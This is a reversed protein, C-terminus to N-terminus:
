RAEEIITTRPIAALREGACLVLDIGRPFLRALAARQGLLPAPLAAALRHEREIGPGSLTLGAGEALSALQLILTAGEQPAEDSGTRLAALAPPAGTAILFDAEGPDAVIPCGTHFALWEGAEPGADHWLPTEADLLTLAAAATAADLGPPPEAPGSVSQVRGPRSMAELLARFCAQAGLVPDAFAPTLSM